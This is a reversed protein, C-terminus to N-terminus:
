YLSRKGKNQNLPLRKRLMEIAQAAARERNMTRGFDGTLKRTTTEAGREALALWITGVPKDPTGGNPGAIGTIGIAFDTGLRELAGQAMERATEESVAGFRELTQHRVGLEREKVKNHYAVIAGKFVKSAGSVSTVMSALLGGTCSEATALTKGQEAILRVILEELSDEESGFIYTGARERLIAEVRTLERQAAAKTKACTTIRLRVGSARPLFALTTGNRLFTAPDGIREALTSEGIGSTLLTRHLIVELKKKYTRRLFPIVGTKLLFDMESPVGPLIVFTKGREHRLLGPATGFDNKLPRFGAPVLAQGINVDPMKSYGLTAFRKRVAALTPGHLELKARFFKAVVAKSIDDHTPGLGGTVIVVDAAKWATRFESLIANAEDGVTTQRVVPIGLAGLEKAIFAANTNVVQGILLEDGITILEARM